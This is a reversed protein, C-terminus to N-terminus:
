FKSLLDNLINPIIYYIINKYSEIFLDVMNLNNAISYNRLAWDIPELIGAISVLLLILILLGLYNLYDRLKLKPISKVTNYDIINKESNSDSDSNSDLNLTISVPLIKLAYHIGLCISLAVAAFEFIGHPIVALLDLYRLKAGSLGTFPNLITILYFIFLVNIYSIVVENEKKLDHKYLLAVAVIASSITFCALFNNVIYTLALSLYSVESGTQSVVASSVIEFKKTAIFDAHKLSYLSNISISLLTISLYGIICLFYTILFKKSFSLSLFKTYRGIVYNYTNKLM